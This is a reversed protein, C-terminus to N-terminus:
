THGDGAPRSASAPQATEAVHEGALECWAGAARGRSGVAVAAGKMQSCASAVLDEAGQQPHLGLKGVGCSARAADAAQSVASAARRQPCCGGYGASGQRKAASGM